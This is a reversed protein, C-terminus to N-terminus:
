TIKAVEKIVQLAKPIENPHILMFGCKPCRYGRVTLDDVQYIICAETTCDCFVCRPSQTRRQASNREDLGM